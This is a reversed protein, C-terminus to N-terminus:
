FAVSLTLAGYRNSTQGQFEESGNVKTYTLRYRGLLVALGFRLEGVLGNKDVSHSDTVTNGDLFINRAVARGELAVYVYWRLDPAPKFYDTGPPGPRISPPGDHPPINQGVRLTAGASLYTYVNGLAAGVYPSLEVRYNGEEPGNAAGYWGGWIRDYYLNIALEDNLQNGWGMPEDSGFLRHAWQQVEEGYAHPGVVGIQLEVSDLIRHGGERPRESELAIGGYLYAAYPQDTTILQTQHIDRPTFIKQGLSYTVRFEGEGLPLARALPRLPHTPGMPALYALRFGSTYNQDTDLFYDNDFHVSLVGSSPEPEAAAAPIHAMAILALLL